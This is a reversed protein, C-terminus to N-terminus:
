SSIKNHNSMLKGAFPIAIVGIIKWVAFSIILNQVILTISTAIAAGRAGYQPILVLNLCILLIANSFMINRMVNEHGSMTLLYGVAGTVVYFFQGFALIVLIPAAEIFQEGFFSMIFAPCTMLIVVIPTAIVVLLLTSKVAVDQLKKIEGKHYLAAFQPAIVTNVCSLIFNVLLATKYAISFLGVDLESGWIGLLISSSWALVLQSLSVWFLPVNSRLLTSTKFIGALNNIQPTYKRWLYYSFFLTAWSALVFGIVSGKLGLLPILFLMLFAGLMSMSVGHIFISAKIKGIAQLSYGNLVFLSGPVIAFAMLKIPTALVEKHFVLNATLDATFFVIGTTLLSALLCFRQSTDRVGKVAVWDGQSSSVSIFKLLSQGLGFQSLIIAISVFSLSLYFLGTGEAGLLRALVVNLFFGFFAAMVKMFFAAATKKVIGQSGIYKKLSM